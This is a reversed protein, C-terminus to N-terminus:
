HTCFYFNLFPHLVYAAAETVGVAIVLEAVEVTMTVAGVADEVVVGAEEVVVGVVIERESIMWAPGGTVKTSFGSIM